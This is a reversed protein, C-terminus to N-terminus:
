CQSHVATDQCMENIKVYFKRQSVPRSPDLPCMIKKERRSPPLRPCPMRCLPAAAGGGRGNRQRRGHDYYVTVNTAQKQNPQEPENRRTKSSYRQPITTFLGRRGAPRPSSLDSRVVEHM